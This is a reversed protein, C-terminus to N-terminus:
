RGDLKVIIAPGDSAVRVPVDAGLGLHRVVLAAIRADRSSDAPQALLAYAADLTEREEDELMRMRIVRERELVVWTPRGRALGRAEDADVSAERGVLARVGWPWGHAHPISVKSIDGAREVERWARTTLHRVDVGGLRAATRLLVQSTQAEGHVLVVAPPAERALEAALLGNCRYLYPASDRPFDAARTMTWTGSALAYAGGIVVVLSAASVLASRVDRVRPFELAALLGLPLLAAAGHAYRDNFVSTGRLTVLVLLILPLAGAVLVAARLRWADPAARRRYSAVIALAAAALTAAVAVVLTRTAGGQRVDLGGMRALVEFPTKRVNFYPSWALGAAYAGSHASASRAIAVLAPAAVVLAASAIVAIRRLDERSRPPRVLLLPALAAAAPPFVGIAFGATAGLTLDRRLSRTPRTWMWWAGAVAIVAPAYDHLEVSWRVFFPHVAYVLCAAHGGGRGLVARALPRIAVVIAVGLAAGYSRAALLSDAGFCWTWLKHLGVLYPSKLPDLWPLDNWLAGWSLLSMRVRTLDDLWLERTAAHRWRLWAALALTLVFWAADIRRTRPDPARPSSV